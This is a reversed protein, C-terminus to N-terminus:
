IEERGHGVTGPVTGPTGPVATVGERLLPTVTGLTKRKVPVPVRACGM